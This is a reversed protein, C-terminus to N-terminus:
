FVSLLMETLIIELNIGFTKINNSFFNFTEEVRLVNVILLETSDSVKSRHKRFIYLFM